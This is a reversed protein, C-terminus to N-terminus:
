DLRDDLGVVVATIALAEGLFNFGGAALAANRFNQEQEVRGIRLVLIVFAELAGYSLVGTM